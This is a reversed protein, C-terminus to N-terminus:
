GPRSTRGPPERGALGAEDRVVLLRAPDDVGLSMRPLAPVQEVRLHVLRVGIRLEDLHALVEGEEDRAAVLESAAPLGAVVSQRVGDAPARGRPAGAEPRRAPTAACASAGGGARSAFLVAAFGVRSRSRRGARAAVDGGRRARHDRVRDSRHVHRRVAALGPLDVGALSGDPLRRRLARHDGSTSSGSRAADRDRALLLLDHGRRGRADRPVAARRRCDVSTDLGSIGYALVAGGSIVDVARWIRVERVSVLM